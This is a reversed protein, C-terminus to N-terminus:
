TVGGKFAADFDARGQRISECVPHRALPVEVVTDFGIAFSFM